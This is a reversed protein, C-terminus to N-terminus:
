GEKKIYRPIKDLVINFHAPACKRCIWLGCMFCRYMYLLSREKKCDPCTIRINKLKELTINKRIEKFQLELHELTKEQEQKTIEGEMILGGKLDIEM